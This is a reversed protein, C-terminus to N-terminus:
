RPQADDLVMLKSLFVPEAHACGLGAEQFLAPLDEKLYSAYYPEHFNLPFAELMGDLDARDGRQLSDMFVLRGGPKLVRALEGAIIRRVKPPVEHFLYVCTVLDVSRDPYPLHEANGTVLPIDRYPKLHQRAEELYATSLDLGSAGIRPFAQKIFRLLRGTGCAIDLLRVQRQDRGKLWAAIPPLCQRRMANATGSFLVEVQTDYLRASDRTLYGGTQYHFNQLFYAPLAGRPVADRVENGKREARRAASLPVDAFFQRSTALRERLSGDHDRPLPYLGREVNDLDREFLATIDTLIRELGPGPARPKLRRVDSEPKASRFRATAFYHGMFWAVRSAQRAAYAARELPSLM